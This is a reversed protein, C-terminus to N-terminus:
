KQEFRGVSYTSITNVFREDKDTHKHKYRHKRTSIQLFAPGTDLMAITSFLRPVSFFVRPFILPSTFHVNAMENHSVSLPWLTDPNLNECQRQTNTRPHGDVSVIFLDLPLGYHRAQRASAALM